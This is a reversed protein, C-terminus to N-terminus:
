PDGGLGPPGGLESWLQGSDGPKCTLIGGINAKSKTPRPQLFSGLVASLFLMQFDGGYIM